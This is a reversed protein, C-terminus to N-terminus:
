SDEGADEEEKDNLFRAEFPFGYGRIKLRERCQMLLEEDEYFRTIFEDFPVGKGTKSQIRDHRYFGSGSSFTGPEFPTNSGFLLDRNAKTFDWGREDRYMMIDIARGKPALKNKTCRIRICQENVPDKVIEKDRINILDFDWSAHYRIPKKAMHSTENTFGFGSGIVEKEQNTTFLCVNNHKFYNLKNRFFKSFQRSHQATGNNGSEEGTEVDTEKEALSSVSDICAVIPHHMEPDVENRISKVTDTMSDLCSEMSPPDLMLISYPNAGLEELRDPPLPTEETEAYLTYTDATRQFMGIFMVVRSTKGVAELAVMNTLRGAILGRTGFMYELPLCATGTKPDQFDLYVADAFANSATGLTAAVKSKGLLHAIGEEVGFETLTRKAKKTAM